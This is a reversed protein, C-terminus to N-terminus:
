EPEPRWMVLLNLQFLGVSYVILHLELTVVTTSHLLRRFHPLPFVQELSVSFPLHLYCYPLLTCRILNM